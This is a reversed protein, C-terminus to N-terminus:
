GEPRPERVWPSEPSDRWAYWGLPLDVLECIRPEIELVSRLAVVAADDITAQRGPAHFQWAGDEADHTVDHVWDEYDLIRRNTFM